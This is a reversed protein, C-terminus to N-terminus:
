QYSLSINGGDFTNVGSPIVRIRDLAGSLTIYCSGVRLASSDALVVHSSVWINQAIDAKWFRIAGSNLVTGNNGAVICGGTSLNGSVTGGSLNHSDALYGSTVYSGSGLQILEDDTGSLSVHHFFVTFSNVWSPIGTFNVATGSASPQSAAGTSWGGNLTSSSITVGSLTGGSIAVASPTYANYTSAGTGGSTVPLPTTISVSSAAVTSFQGTSGSIPTGTITGGTIAVSASNYNSPISVGSALVLPSIVFLLLTIIRNKM